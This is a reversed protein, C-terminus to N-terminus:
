KLTKLRYEWEGQKVFKAKLWIFSNEEYWIDTNLKKNDPLSEDSSLFKFHLSNYSKGEIDIKKKGLFVVKQEIIRGSIASIQAKAKIIQHNWWTGVIYDISGDGTFSSGKIKLKNKENNLEINVFKDKKNQKTKSSFSHFKGNKYNEDSIAFYKYLDIGLKSIKFSVESKVTLDQGKRIFDYKHTGILNNNRYLDYELYNIDSYHQVHSLTFSSLFFYFIISLVFKKM